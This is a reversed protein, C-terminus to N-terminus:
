GTMVNNGFHMFEQNMGAVEGAELKLSPNDLMTYSAQGKVWEDASQLTTLTYSTVENLYHTPI